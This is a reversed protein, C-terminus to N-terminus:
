LICLIIAMFSIILAQATILRQMNIKRWISFTGPKYLFRQRREGLGYLRNTPLFKSFELYRDSYIFPLDKNDFITENTSKRKIKISFPKNIVEIEYDRNANNSAPKTFPFPQQYPLTFRTRNSDVYRLTLEDNSDFSATFTINKVFPSLKNSVYYDDNGLYKLHVEIGNSDNRILASIEYGPYSEENHDDSKLIVLFVVCLVVVIVIVLIIAIIAFLMKRMRSRRSSNEDENYYQEYNAAQM